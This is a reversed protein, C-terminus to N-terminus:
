PQATFSKATLIDMMSAQSTCRGVRAHRSSCATVECALSAQSPLLM